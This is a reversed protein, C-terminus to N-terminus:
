AVAHEIAEKSCLLLEIGSCSVHREHSCGDAYRDVTIAYYRALLQKHHPYSHTVSRLTRYPEGARKVSRHLQDTLYGAAARLDYVYYIM